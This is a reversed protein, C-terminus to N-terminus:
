ALYSIGLIRVLSISRSCAIPRRRHRPICPICPLLCYQFFPVTSSGAKGSRLFFSRNNRTQRQLRSTAMNNQRAINCTKLRM